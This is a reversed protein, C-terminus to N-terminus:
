RFISNDSVQYKEALMSRVEQTDEEPWGGRAAVSHLLAIATHYSVLSNCHVSCRQDKEPKTM